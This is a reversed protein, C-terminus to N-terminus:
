APEVLRWAPHALIITGAHRGPPMLTETEWVLPSGWWQSLARVTTGTQDCTWVQGVEVHPKDIRTVEDARWYTQGGPPVDLTLLPVPEGPIHVVDVVLGISPDERTSVNLTVADGVQIEVATADM